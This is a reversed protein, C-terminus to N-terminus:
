EQNLGSTEEPEATILRRFKSVGYELCKLPFTCRGINLSQATLTIEAGVQQLFDM